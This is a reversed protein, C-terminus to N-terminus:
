LMVYRSSRRFTSVKVGTCLDYGGGPAPKYPWATVLSGNIDRKVGWLICGDEVYLRYGRVTHWGDSIKKM